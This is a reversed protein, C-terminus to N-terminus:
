TDKMSKGSVFGNVSFTDEWGDNDLDFFGGGYAWGAGFGGARQAVNRFTGDGQNEFLSNGAALKKLVEGDPTADPMLRKLIRNGATSSMNTVHLDLDGDNDYDGFSVGMGNGPDVVGREVAEDRFHDGQNVFLANEGFDNAVYLDQRGDADVDAFAAAYGWRTDAVQWGIAEERFRGNGQHIFLLNPTGTTAKSWSNPMVQGYLNYSTVYIDTWGDNNVDAAAVSFGVARRDVGAQGSVDLFQLEGTPRLQNQLLSQEGVAALFIDLDGDNDYDLFLAGTGDRSYGVLTEDSVDRFRGEWENLFLRNGLVGTTLVDLLGDQNVDGVTVGHARFGDNPPEGFAPVDEWLGAPITVESFLDKVSLMSELSEFRWSRIWWSDEPSREVRLQVWGRVWERRGDRDRGVLFWFVRADGRTPNGAVFDAAKVKFRVDELETFHSLFAEISQLFENRPLRSVNDNLTWGHRGIWKIDKELAEPETPFLNGRFEEPFYKQLHSVDQRRLAVSLDLLENALSESDDEIQELIPRDLELPSEGQAAAESHLLCVVPVLALAAALTGRSGDGL